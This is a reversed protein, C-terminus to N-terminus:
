RIHDLILRRHAGAVDVLAAPAPIDDDLGSAGRSCLAVLEPTGDEDFRVVPGGSYGSRLTDDGLINAACKEDDRIDATACAGPAIIATHVQTLRGHGDPGGPWGFVSVKDGLEVPSAALRIPTTDVPTDLTLVALDGMIKLPPAGLVVVPTFGATETKLIERRDGGGIHDAGVRVFFNREAIGPVDRAGPPIPMDANFLHAATVVHQPSILVGAGTYQDGWGKETVDWRITVMWPASMPPDVVHPKMPLDDMIARVGVSVQRLITEQDM